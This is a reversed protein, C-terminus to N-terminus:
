GVQGVAFIMVMVMMMFLMFHNVFTDFFLFGAAGLPYFFGGFLNSFYGCLYLNEDFLFRFNGINFLLPDDLM